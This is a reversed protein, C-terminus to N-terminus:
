ILGSWCARRGCEERLGPGGDERPRETGRRERREERRRRAAEEIGEGWAGGREGCSLGTGDVAGSSCRRVIEWGPVGGREPRRRRVCWGGRKVM